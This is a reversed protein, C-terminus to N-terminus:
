SAHPQFVTYSSGWHDIEIQPLSRNCLTARLM